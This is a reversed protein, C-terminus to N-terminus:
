RGVRRRENERAVSRSRTDAHGERRREQRKDHWNDLASSSSEKSPVPLLPSRTAMHPHHAGAHQRPRSPRHRRIMPLPNPQRNGIPPCSHDCYRHARTYPSNHTDTCRNTNRHAILSGTLKVHILQALGTIFIIDSDGFANCYRPRTHISATVSHQATCSATTTFPYTACVALPFTCCLTYM